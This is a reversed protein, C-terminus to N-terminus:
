PLLLNIRSAEMVFHRSHLARFTVNTVLRSNHGVIIIKCNDLAVTNYKLGFKRLDFVEFQTCTPRTYFDLKQELCAYVCTRDRARACINAYAHLTWHCRALLLSSSFPSAASVLMEIRMSTVLRDLRIKRKWNLPRALLSMLMRYRSAHGDISIRAQKTAWVLFKVQKFALAWVGASVFKLIICSHM